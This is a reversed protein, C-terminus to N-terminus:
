LAHCALRSMTRITLIKALLTPLAVSASVSAFPTLPERGSVVNDPKKIQQYLATRGADALPAENACMRLPSDCERRASSIKACMMPNKLTAFSRKRRCTHYTDGAGPSFRAILSLAAARDRPSITPPISPQDGITCQLQRGAPPETNPDAAPRSSRMPRPAPPCTRRHAPMVIPRGGTINGAQHLPRPRRRWAAAPAAPAPPLAGGLGCLQFGM